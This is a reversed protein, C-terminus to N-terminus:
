FKRLQIQNWFTLLPCFEITKILKNKKRMQIRVAARTIEKIAKPIPLSCMSSGFIYFRIRCKMVSCFCHVLFHAYSTKLIRLIADCSRYSNYALFQLHCSKNAINRDVMQKYSHCNTFASNCNERKTHVTTCM